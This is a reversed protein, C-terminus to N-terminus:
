RSPGTSGGTEDERGVIERAVYDALREILPARPHGDFPVIYEDGLEEYDPIIESLRHVRLSRGELAGVLEEALDGFDWALVHFEGDTEEEVTRRAQDVIAALLPIDAAQFPSRSAVLSLVHSRMAKELLYSGMSEQFQGERRVGGEGDLVFRPGRPDWPAKGAARRGHSARVSCIVVRPENALTEIASGEELMALMHHPGYGPAAFNYCRYRGGLAIEVTYPLTEDDEVGEGFTGSAGFFAIVPLEGEEAVAPRVRLGDPGTTYTVEYLLTSGHFKRASVQSDPRLAYGLTEHETGWRGAELRTGDGGANLVALTGEALVLLVAIPVLAVWLPRKTPTVRARARALRGLVVAWLGFVWAFPAVANNLLILSAAVAALILLPRTRPMPAKKPLRPLLPRAHPLSFRFSTGAKPFEM